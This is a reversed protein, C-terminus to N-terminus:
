AVVIQTNALAPAGTLNVVLVAPNPGTGDPDFRLAGATTDYIFRQSATTAATAGAGALFQALPLTGATLGGGFGLAGVRITDGAELDCIEDTGHLVNALVLVDNGPGGVLVDNGPGGILTDNGLGGDISDNGGFGMVLDNGAFAAITDNFQTGTFQQSNDNGLVLNGNVGARQSLIGATPVAPVAVVFDAITVVGPGLRNDVTAIQFGFVQGATVAFVDTGNQNQGGGDNTLRTPTGGLLRNFPDWFPGDVTTYNWAYSVTANAPATIAITYDTTGAGGGLNGGTLTISNPASATNVFGGDANTNTLTWNTPAFSGQFGTLLTQPGTSGTNGNALALLAASITM